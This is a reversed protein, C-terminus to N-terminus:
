EVRIMRRNGTLSSDRHIGALKAAYTEKHTTRTTKGSLAVMQKVIIAVASKRVDALLRADRIRLAVVAKRRNKGVHVIVAPDIQRNGVIRNRAIEIPITVVASKFIDAIQGTKSQGVFTERLCGHTNGDSIVIAVTAQIKEDGRKGVVVFRQVTIVAVEVKRINGIGCSEAAGGNREQTPACTEQIKIVIAQQIYEDGVAVHIRRNVLTIPSGSPGLTRLKEAMHITCLELLHRRCRPAAKGEYNRGPAGREPIEEIITVDVHNKIIHIRSRRQKAVHHLIAIVPNGEFQNSPGLARAIGDTGHDEQSSASNALATVDQAPSAITRTGIRPDM